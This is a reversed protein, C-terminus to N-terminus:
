YSRNNRLAEVVVSDFAKEDDISNISHLCYWEMPQNVSIHLTLIQDTCFRNRHYRNSISSTPLLQRWENWFFHALLIIRIYNIFKMWKASPHLNRRETRTVNKKWKSLLLNVTMEINAKIVEAPSKNRNTKLNKLTM